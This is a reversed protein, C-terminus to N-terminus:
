GESHLETYRDKLDGSWAAKEKFFRKTPRYIKGCKEYYGDIELQYYLKERNHSYAKLAWDIDWRTVKDQGAFFTKIKPLFEKYYDM